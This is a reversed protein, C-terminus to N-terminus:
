KSNEQINRFVPIWVWPNDSWADEGHISNWLTWFSLRATDQTLECVGNVIHQYDPWGANMQWGAGVGEAIADDESIDQLQECRVGIIEPKTRALKNPLFLGSRKYWGTEERGHSIKDPPNDTFLVEHNLSIFRWSPRGSKTFGSREWYGYRYHIERIVLRDGIQWKPYIRYVTGNEAWNYPVHLYHWAYKHGYDPSISNDVYPLRAKQVGIIKGKLEDPVFESTSSYCLGGFDCESEGVWDFKSWDVIGVGVVSNRSTVIRRTQTKDGTHCKLANDPTMLIGHDKM